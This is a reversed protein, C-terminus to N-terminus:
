ESILHDTLFIKEYEVQEKILVEVNNFDWNDAIIEAMDHTTYNDDDLGSEGILESVLLNFEISEVLEPKTFDFEYKKGNIMAIQHGNKASLIEINM